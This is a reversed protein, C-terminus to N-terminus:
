GLGGGVEDGSEGVGAVDEAGEDLLRLTERYKFYPLQNRDFRPGYPQIYPFVQQDVVRSLKERKDRERKQRVATAGFMSLCVGLYFYYIKM